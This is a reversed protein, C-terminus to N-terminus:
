GPWGRSDRSPHLCAIVVIADEFVQYFLLYPFRGLVGKRISNRHIPWCNPHEQIIRFAADLASLFAEGVGTEQEEYWLFAQLIDAEAEPRIRLPKLGQTGPNTRPRDGM